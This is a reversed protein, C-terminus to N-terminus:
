KYWISKIRLCQRGIRERLHKPKSIGNVAMRMHGCSLKWNNTILLMHAHETTGLVVTNTHGNYFRLIVMKQQMQVLEGNGIVVANALGCLYKYTATLLQMLVYGLIKGGIQPQVFGNSYM